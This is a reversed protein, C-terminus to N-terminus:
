AGILRAAIQDALVEPVRQPREDAIGGPDRDGAQALPPEPPNWTPDGPRGPCHCRVRQQEFM